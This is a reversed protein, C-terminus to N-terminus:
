VDRATGQVRDGSPTPDYSRTWDVRKPSCFFDILNRICGRGFPSIGKNLAIHGYRFSNMRENTTLAIAVQYLQMCTLGSAWSMQLAVYLMLWFIVTNHSAYLVIKEYMSAGPPSNRALYRLCLCIFIVGGAILSVLYLVFERHNWQGICNDVFPCHHDFKAVCKNCAGCHKSRIPRKILCTSCFHSPDLEDGGGEAARIITKRKEEETAHIFGPNVTKVKYFVFVLYSAISIFLLNWFPSPEDRVIVALFAVLVYFKSATYIAVSAKNSGSYVWLRKAIQSSAFLALLVLPVSGEWTFQGVVFAIIAFLVYPLYFLVRNRLTQDVQLREALTKAAAELAADHLRRAAGAHGKEVAVEEPTQGKANRADLLSAGGSDLVLEICVRNNSCAAWHLATSNSMDRIRISAHFVLLMRSMEPTFVRFCAWMLATRGDNDPVDPDMGKAVLYAAVATHGFQVALHLSNYGQIDRISPDAGRLMLSVVTDLHGQRVAWQLPTAKLEGGIRDVAAGKEILFQCLAARNNIAAWHLVSVDEADAKNVDVGEFEVLYRCRDVLGRQAAQFINFSSADVQAPLPLPQGVLGSDM